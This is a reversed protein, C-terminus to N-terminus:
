EELEAGLGLDIIELSRMQDNVTAMIVPNGNGFSETQKSSQLQFFHRTFEQMECLFIM